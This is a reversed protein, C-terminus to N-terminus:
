RISEYLTVETSVDEDATRMKSAGSKRIQGKTGEGAKKKQQKNRREDRKAGKNRNGRERETNGQSGARRYGNSRRNTSNKRGAIVGYAKKRGSIGKRGEPRRGVRPM